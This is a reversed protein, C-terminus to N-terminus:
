GSSAMASACPTDTIRHAHSFSTGRVVAKLHALSGSTRLVPTLQFQRVQPQSQQEVETLDLENVFDRPEEQRTHVLRSRFIQVSPLLPLSPRSGLSFQPVFLTRFTLFPTGRGM